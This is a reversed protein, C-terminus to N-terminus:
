RKERVSVFFQSVKCSKKLFPASLEKQKWHWGAGNNWICVALNYCGPKFANANGWIGTPISRWSGHDSKM